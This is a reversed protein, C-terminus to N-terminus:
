TDKHALGSEIYHSRHTIKGMSDEESVVAEDGFANDPLSDSVAQWAQKDREIQMNHAYGVVPQYLTPQRKRTKQGKKLLMDMVM